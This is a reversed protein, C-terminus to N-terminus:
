EDGDLTPKFLEDLPLKTKLFKKIEFAENLTFGQNGNIKQSFTSETRGIADAVEAMKLNRRKIEARLNPYM